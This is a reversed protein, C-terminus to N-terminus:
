KALQELAERDERMVRRAAELQKAVKADVILEVGNESPIAHVEAHADIQLRAAVEDTLVIVPRNDIRTLTLNEM